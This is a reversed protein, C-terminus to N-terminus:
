ANAGFYAKEAAKFARHRKKTSFSSILNACELLGVDSDYAEQIAFALDLVNGCDRPAIASLLVREADATAEHCDKCLCVLSAEPYEWAMLGKQYYRHHIELGEGEPVDACHECAFNARTLIELRKKQWRPDNLQQWYPM